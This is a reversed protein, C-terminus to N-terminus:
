LTSLSPVASVNGEFLEEVYSGWKQMLEMSVPSLEGDYFVQLDDAAIPQVFQKHSTHSGSGVNDILLNIAQERFDPGTITAHYGIRKLAAYLTRDSMHHSRRHRCPFLYWPNTHLLRLESLIETAQSSLPVFSRQSRHMRSPPLLWERKEIHIESWEARVLESPRVFTLLMLQIALYTQRGIKARQLDCLLRSLKENELGGQRQGTGSM